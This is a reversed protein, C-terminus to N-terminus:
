PRAGGVSPVAARRRVGAVAVGTVVLASGIWAREGFREGVVLVDLLVAVVPFIYSMLALRSVSVRKLLTYYTVVAVTSGCVTLFLLSEVARASWVVDHWDEALLSLAILIAGGYFMPLATLTYSHLDAGFKKIGVNAIASALPSILVLGAALPARPHSLSVDDLMLVAVGGFGLAIGVLKRASLEEDPLVQAAVVSVILPHTAFLVATLGAPLYQEGWYVVGFSLAFACLGLGLLALHMRAGRPRDVGRLLALSAIIASAGLYRVGGAFFPPMDRLGAKIAFWTSGWILCLLAVLAGRIAPRDLVSM